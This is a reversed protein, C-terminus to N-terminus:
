WDTSRNFSIVLGRPGKLSDFDRWNGHQDRARIPPIEQGVKIGVEETMDSRHLNRQALIPGLPSLTLLFVFFFNPIGHNKFTM